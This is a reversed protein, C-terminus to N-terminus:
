QVQEDALNSAAGIKDLRLLEIDEDMRLRWIDFTLQGEEGAHGRFLVQNADLSIEGEEARDWIGGDLLLHHLDRLELNCCSGHEWGQFLELLM